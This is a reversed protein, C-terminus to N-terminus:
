VLLITPLTLHTYSVPGFTTQDGAAPAGNAFSGELAVRLTATGSTGLSPCETNVTDSDAVAYFFEGPFNSPFKVPQAPDFFADGLVICNADAPNLCPQVRVGNSDQYYQPYGNRSDQAPSVAPNAASGRGSLPLTHTGGPANDTIVLSGTLAGATLPTFAVDIECADGPQVLATCRNDAIEFSAPNAGGITAAQVDLPQGGGANSVKITQVPSTRGVHLPAFDASRPVFSIAPTGGPAGGTGTLPVVLPDNLGSHRVVLNANQTGQATPAFTVSVTCTGNPALTSGM